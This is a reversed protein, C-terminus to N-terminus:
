DKKYMQQHASNKQLKTIKVNPDNTIWDLFLSGLTLRDNRPIRKWLYGVFLDKVIFEEGSNLNLVEQKAAQLHPNM